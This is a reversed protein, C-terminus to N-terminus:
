VDNQTLNTNNISHDNSPQVKPIEMKDSRGLEDQKLTSITANHLMTPLKSLWVAQDTINRRVM